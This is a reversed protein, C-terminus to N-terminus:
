TKSNGVNNEKSIKPMFEGILDYSLPPWSLLAEESVGRKECDM